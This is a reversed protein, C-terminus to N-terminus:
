KIEEIKMFIEKAVPDSKIMKVFNSIFNKMSNSKTGVM